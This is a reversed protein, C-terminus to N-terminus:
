INNDYCYKKINFIAKRKELEKKAEEETLFIESYIYCGERFLIDEVEWKLTIYYVLDWKKLDFFTKPKEEIIKFYETNDLWLAKTLDFINWLTQWEILSIWWTETTKFQTGVKCTPIDKILEYIM